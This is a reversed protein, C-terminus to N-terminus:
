MVMEEWAKISEEWNEVSEEWSEIKCKEKYVYIDDGDCIKSGKPLKISGNPFLLCENACLSFAFERSNCGVTAFYLKKQDSNAIAIIDPDVIWVIFNGDNKLCHRSACALLPILSLVVIFRLIAIIKKNASCDM